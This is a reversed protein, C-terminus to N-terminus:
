FLNIEKSRMSCVQPLIIVIFPSSVIMIVMMMQCTMMCLIWASIQPWLIWPPRTFRKFPPQPHRKVQQVGLKVWNYFQHLHNQLWNPSRFKGTTKVPFARPTANNRTQYTKYLEPISGTSAVTITSMATSHLLLHTLPHTASTRPSVLHEM